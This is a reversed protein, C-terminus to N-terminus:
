DVTAAETKITAKETINSMEKDLKDSAAEGLVASSQTNDATTSISNTASHKDSTVDFNDSLISSDLSSTPSIPSLLASSDKSSVDKTSISTTLDATSSSIPTSSATSTPSLASPTEENIKEANPLKSIETTPIAQIGISAPINQPKSSSDKQIQSSNNKPPQLPVDKETQIKPDIRIKTQNNALPSSVSIKKNPLIPKSKCRLSSSSRKKSIKPPCAKRELELAEAAISFNIPCPVVTPNLKEGKQDRRLCGVLLFISTFLIVLFFNM